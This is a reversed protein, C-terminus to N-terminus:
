EFEYSHYAMDHLTLSASPFNVQNEGAENTIRFTVKEPLVKIMLYMLDHM